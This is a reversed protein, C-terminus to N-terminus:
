SRKAPDVITGVYMPVKNNKSVVFLFPRDVNFDMRKLEPPLGACAWGMEALAAAEVGKETIKVRTAHDAKSLYIQSEDTIESLNAAEPDFVSHIGMAQMASRADIKSSIDFRPIRMTVRYEEQTFASPNVLFELAAADEILDAITVGQAPLVFWMAYGFELYKGVATFNEGIYCDTDETKKLYSDISKVTFNESM